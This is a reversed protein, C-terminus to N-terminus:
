QLWISIYKVTKCKYVPMCCLVINDFRFNVRYENARGPFYFHWFLFVFSFSLFYFFFFGSSLLLLLLMCICFVIMSAINMSPLIHVLFLACTVVDWEVLVLKKSRENGNKNDYRSTFNKKPKKNDDIILHANLKKKKWKAKNLIM